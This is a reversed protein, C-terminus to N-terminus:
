RCLRQRLENTFESLPEGPPEAPTGPLLREIREALGHSAEHSMEALLEVVPFYVFPRAIDPHPLTLAEENVVLDGYLVLDLDITRPSDRDGTRVRGLGGEIPQLVATKMQSAPVETEIRWVGNVYWPQDCRGIPQTRYFTSSGVVRTREQLAMLAARINREPEINAGVSVFADSISHTPGM